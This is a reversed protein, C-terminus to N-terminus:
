QSLKKERKVAVPDVTPAIKYPSHLIFIQLCVTRVGNFSHHEM